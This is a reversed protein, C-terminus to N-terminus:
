QLDGRENEEEKFREALAHTAEIWQKFAVDHEKLADGDSRIGTSFMRRAAEMLNEADLAHEKNGCQSCVWMLDLDHPKCSPHHEM